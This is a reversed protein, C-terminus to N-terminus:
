IMITSSRSLLQELRSYYKRLTDRSAAFFVAALLLYCVDLWGLGIAPFKIRFCVYAFTTAVLQNSYFLYYRYHIEILLNVAAVRESIQKFSLSPPCIGTWRHLNDITAWRVAGVTMGVAIASATVYLFGGVTPPNNCEFSLLHRMPEIYLSLGLIATAGPVLCSILIGFNDNSLQMRRRYRSRSQAALIIM